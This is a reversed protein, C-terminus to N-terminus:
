NPMPHVRYILDSYWISVNPFFNTYYEYLPYINFKLKANPSSAPFSIVLGYDTPLPQQRNWGSPMVGSHTSIGVNNLNDLYFKAENGTGLYILAHGSSLGNRSDDYGFPASRSSALDGLKSYGNGIYDIFSHWANHSMQDFVYDGWDGCCPSSCTNGCWSCDAGSTWAVSTDSNMTSRIARLMVTDDPGSSALFGFIELTPIEDFINEVKSRITEAWSEDEGRRAAIDIYTTAACEFYNNRILGAEANVSDLVSDYNIIEGWDNSDGENSNCQILEKENFPNQAVMGETGYKTEIYAIALIFAPNVDSEEGSNILSMAVDTNAMPSNEVGEENNIYEIIDTALQSKDIQRTTPYTLNIGQERGLNIDSGEGMRLFALVILAILGGVILILGGCGYMLWKGGGGQIFEKAAGLWNGGAAQLAAKGMQYAEQLNAPGKGSSGQM